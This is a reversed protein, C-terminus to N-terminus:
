QWNQLMCCLIGVRKHDIDERPYITEDLFIESTRIKISAEKM